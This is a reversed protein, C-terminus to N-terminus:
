FRSGQKSWVWGWAASEPSCSLSACRRIRERDEGHSLSRLHIGLLFRPRGRLQITRCTRAALDAASELIRPNDSRQDDSIADALLACGERLDDLLFDAIYVDSHDSDEDLLFVFRNIDAGNVLRDVLYALGDSVIFSSPGLIDYIDAVLRLEWAVGIREITPERHVARHSTVQPFTDINM